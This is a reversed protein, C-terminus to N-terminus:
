KRWKQYVILITLSIFFVLVVWLWNIQGQLALSTAGAIAAGFTSVLLKGVLDEDKNPQPKEMNAPLETQSRNKKKSRKTAPM